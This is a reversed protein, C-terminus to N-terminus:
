FCSELLCILMQITKSAEVLNEKTREMISSGLAGSRSLKQLRELSGTNGQDASLQLLEAAKKVDMPGGRGEELMFAYNNQAEALGHEAAKQFWSRASTESVKCGDGDLLAVGLNNQATPCDHRAAKLYWKFAETSCKDVGRGDRYCNGLLAEAAAVGVNPMITGKFRTFAKQSAAKRCMEVSKQFDRSLGGKGESYFRAVNYLGEASGKKAAAEFIKLAKEQSDQTTSFKGYEYQHAKAISTSLKQGELLKDLNPCEEIDESTRHLSSYRNTMEIFKDHMEERGSAKFFSRGFAPNKDTEDSEILARCDRERLLLVGDRPDIALGKLCAALSERHMKIQLLVESLVRFYKVNTPDLQIADEIDERALDFKSLRLECLARNSYLAAEEQNLHIAQTYCNMAERWREEKYFKNGEQKLSVWENKKFSIASLKDKKEKTFTEEEKENDVKIEILKLIIEALDSKIIATAVMALCEMEHQYRDCDFSQHAVENRVMFARKFSKKFDTFKSETPYFINWDDMIARLCQSFDKKKKGMKKATVPNSLILKVLFPHLLSIAKQINADADAQEMGSATKRRNEKFSM